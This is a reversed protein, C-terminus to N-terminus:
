TNPWSWVEVPFRRGQVCVPGVTIHGPFNAQLLRRGPRPTRLGEWGHLGYIWARGSRLHPVTNRMPFFAHGLYTLENSGEVLRSVNRQLYWRQKTANTYDSLVPNIIDCVKKSSGLPQVSITAQFYGVVDSVKSPAMWLDCLKNNWDTIWRDSSGTYVLMLDRKLTERPETSTTHKTWYHHKGEAHVATAMLLIILLQKM